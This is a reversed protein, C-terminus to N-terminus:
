RQAPPAAAGAPATERDWRALWGARRGLLHATLAARAAKADHARLAEVVRLHEAYLRRREEMRTGAVLTAGIHSAARGEAILGALRPRQAAEVIRGHFEPDTVLLHHLFLDPPTERMEKLTGALGKLREVTIVPAAIEAALGELEARLEWSEEIEARTPRYIVVGGQRDQLAVGIRGLIAIAERAAQLSVSFREAIEVQHLRSGNRIANRRIEGRLQWAIMEPGDATSGNFRALWDAAM